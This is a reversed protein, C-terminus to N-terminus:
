GESENGHSAGEEKNEIALLPLSRLERMLEAVIEATTGEIVRSTVTQSIDDFGKVSTPSGAQGCLSVDVDVDTPNWKQITRESAARIGKATRYRLSKGKEITLVAPLEIRIKDIGGDVMRECDLSSTNIDIIRLVRTADPIDLWEALSTGVQGNNSDYSQKGCLILDFKNTKKVAMSLAYSTALTDAGTFASDNLMFVNDVGVKFADHLIAEANASYMCFVSVTSEPIDEKISLAMELATEDYKSLYLTRATDRNLGEFAPKVCVIIDM